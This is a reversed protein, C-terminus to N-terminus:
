FAGLNEGFDKFMWAKSKWGELIDLIADRDKIGTFHKPDIVDAKL